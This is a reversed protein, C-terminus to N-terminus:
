DFKKEACRDLVTRLHRLNDAIRYHHNGVFFGENHINDANTLEGYISYDFYKIVPHKVINGTVIPRSEIGADTLAKMVQNRHGALSGKLIMAFGFWSSIGVPKQVSVYDVKGFLEQFLEANERRVSLISDLKKLQSIGVAASIEMPRVNYGPLVFRFLDNFPEGDKNFVWNKEPLERTWGHARLSKVVHCIEEDDTTLVGGEITSIHHSFFTSFTGILGFTGTFKDNYKAGMSECNDELLILGHNKCFSNLADYDNPSGLLNTVFVARTKHGIASELANYDLNLTDQSVDVFKLRLGYQQLPFYTTGWSVAPVIVEDGPHLQSKSRYVLSAIALLNASSGSNVMVAYRSGFYDAFKEEFIRVKDGMTFKGSDVVEYIAEIEEKDWSSSTLPYKM